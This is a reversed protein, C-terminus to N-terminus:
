QVVRLTTAGNYSHFEGNYMADAAAPGVHYVGPSVARVVYYFTQVGNLNTFLNVRDDRYDTNTPTTQSSIWKLDPIDTIRSNEVEFGAPLLDSIAVNEIPSGYQMDLTLRVVVLDNQKFVGGTVERGWRDFYSRRIRMFNDEQKVTNSTSIGSTEYYYFVAGGKASISVNQGVLGQNIVVDNDKLEVKKGGYSVVATGKDHGVRRSVKGLAILAFAEEQTSYYRQVRLLTSLHHTLTMVQPNSFEVDALVSLVLAEDRIHSSFCGGFTTASWQDMQSPLVREFSNRDGLALYTCALMYRSDNSLLSPASKYFNMLSVDQRGGLALVYLSYFIEQPAISKTMPKNSADLYVYSRKDSMHAMKSLYHLLRDLCAANVEYGSNRAELLFHAAYASGWWSGEIGGQWYSLGGNYLQMSQLKNIAAQVNQNAASKEAGSLSQCIDTVYLQPFAKSTTQEVCGYPYGILYDLQKSFETVMSRSVVLKSKATSSIFEATSLTINKTEGAAVSGGGTNKLLPSLPRVAISTKDFYNEGNANVKVEVRAEGIAPLASLTFMARGEGNPPISLNQSTTGEAKAAGSVTFQANVSMSKQTTNSLTVPIHVTDGPSLFRPLGSSVVLPDAVTINKDASGFAKGHYAMAMVRLSGSFQPIDFSYSAEGSGTAKVIGSWYAILNFRKTIVPSLRNEYSDDGAGYSTKTPKLDPFIYPYLDFSEVQLARKQYFYEHPDPTKTRKIALIGEDVVAITLESGPAAHVRVTQRTNSRCREPADISVAIHSNEPECMVPAAGHAVTLPMSGDDLPKFLTAVVYVNPTMDGTIKLEMKASREDTRLYQYSQVGNREISVLLRGAFPTKFLVNATEGVRYSAKDLSIDVTGEKKVEFSTSESSGWYWAWFWRSVYNDSEPSMVRVEYDGSVPPTVNVSSSSGSITLVKDMLVEMKKQSVYSFGGWDNKQLVTQWTNRVFQVRAQASVANGNKDVAVLPVNVNQHAPMYGDGYRIGFFVKQTPVDVTALRNVPRGTEDFVTGFVKASLMGSNELEAPIAFSVSANGHEDTKGQQVQNAVNKTNQTTISFNYNKFQKPQFYKRGLDCSIEFNRNAAPPGFYNMANVSAVISDSVEYVQKSTTLSVKIRDPVFEEVSVSKSCLIIDNSSLVEAQYTGTTMSNPLPIDTAASGEGDLSLKLLRWEKGDPASIRLKIPVKTVANWKSDRVITNFHLTEGPRYAERDGYLFAQLGTSNEQLGGVDFRSTEVHTDNFMMYNFDGAVTATIMGVTFDKAKRLVNEFKAVGNGDTITSQLVQNNTSVFKVTVGNMSEASKISNCFVYVDNRSQKAIMGIDSVSVLKGASLYRDDMSEVKVVYIGKYEGLNDVSLNLLSVNGNKAFSKTDYEHESIVNGYIKYYEASRDFNGYGGGYSPQHYEADDEGDGSSSVDYDHYDNNSEDDYYYQRAERLFAQINNEFIKIITVKVKPVGVIRVGINRYSKPSLYMAKASSFKIQPELAGFNINKVYDQSMVGGLVGKLTKYILISYNRSAEFNGKLRFGYDTIENQLGSVEPDVKGWQNAVLEVPQSTYFKVIGMGDEFETSCSTIELKKRSTVQTEVLMDSTTKWESGVCSLGASVSAKLLGDDVADGLNQLEIKVDPGVTVDPVTFAAPQDNVTLHLLAGVSQAKVPYNFHLTAQLEVVGGREAVRVWSADCSEMKLYPTHTTFHVDSGLATKEGGLGLVSKTIDITYNTSPAFQQAPSFSLEHASIWKCVGRVPPEFHVYETTDWQDVLSDAVVDANFTFVLNQQPSIIDNFNTSKVELGSHFSCSSVSLILCCLAAATCARLLFRSM